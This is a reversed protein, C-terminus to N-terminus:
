TQRLMCFIEYHFDLFRQIEPTDEFNSLLVIYFEDPNECNFDPISIRTTGFFTESYGSILKVIQIAVSDNDIISLFIENKIYDIMDQEEYDEGLYETMGSLDIEDYNVDQHSILSIFTESCQELLTILLYEM